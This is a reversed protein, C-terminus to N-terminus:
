ASYGFSASSGAAAPVSGTPLVAETRHGDVCALVLARDPDPEALQRLMQYWGPEYAYQRCQFCGASTGPKHTAYDM